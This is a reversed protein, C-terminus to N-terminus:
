ESADAAVDKARVTKRVRPKPQKAAEDRRAAVKGSRQPAQVRTEATGGPTETGADDVTQAEEIPPEAVAEAVISGADVSESGGRHGGFGRADDGPEPVTATVPRTLKPGPFARIAGHRDREIRLVGDKGAARLLDVVSAFGYNKEDFGDIASRLFQKAQRVYMPWRPPPTSRAFATQVARIGDQM